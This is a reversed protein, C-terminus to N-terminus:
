TVVINLQSLLAKLDLRLKDFDPKNSKGSSNQIPSFFGVIPSNQIPTLAPQLSIYLHKLYEFRDNDSLNALRNSCVGIEPRALQAAIEGGAACLLVLLVRTTPNETAKDNDILKRVEAALLSPSERLHNALDARIAGIAYGVADRAAKMAFKIGELGTQIATRQKPTLHLEFAKYLKELYDLRKDQTLRSLFTACADTEPHLQVPLSNWGGAACFLINLVRVTPIEADSYPAKLARHMVELVEDPSSPSIKAAINSVSQQYQLENKEVRTEIIGSPQETTQDIEKAAAPDLATWYVMLQAFTLQQQHQEFTGQTM